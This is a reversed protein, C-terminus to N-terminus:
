RDNSHEPNETSPRLELFPHLKPRKNNPYAKSSPSPSNRPHSLESFCWDSLGLNGLISFEACDHESNGLQFCSGRAQSIHPPPPQPPPCNPFTTVNERSRIGFTPPFPYQCRLSLKAATEHRQRRALKDSLPFTIRIKPQCLKHGTTKRKMHM